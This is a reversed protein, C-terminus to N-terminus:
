GFIAAGPSATLVTHYIACITCAANNLFLNVDDPTVSKAMDIGDTHLMQGIVQHMHELITNAQPNKVRTPKRKIGYSEFLNQFHLKFESSINCILYCCQPYRCLWTKNVLRAICNSTKEFIEVATLLEKGKVTHQWLQTVLPLIVMKSWSSACANGSNCAM